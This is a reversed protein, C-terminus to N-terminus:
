DATQGWPTAELTGGDCATVEQDVVLEGPEEDPPTVLLGAGTVCDVAPDAQTSPVVRWSLERVTSEGRRLVVTRPEQQSRLFRTPLQTGQGDVLATGGFGLLTCPATGQNTLSVLLRRTSAFPQVEGAAVSLVASTCRQAPAETVPATAAPGSTASPPPDAATTEADDGCASLVLAVALAASARATLARDM